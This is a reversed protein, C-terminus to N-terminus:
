AVCGARSSAVNSTNLLWRDYTYMTDSLALRYFTPNKIKGV